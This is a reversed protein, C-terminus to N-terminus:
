FDIKSLTDFTEQINNLKRIQVNELDELKKIYKLETHFSAILSIDRFINVVNEDSMVKQSRQTLSYLTVKKYKVLETKLSKGKSNKSESPVKEMREAFLRVTKKMLDYQVFVNAFGLLEAATCDLDYFEVCQTIHDTNRKIIAEIDM